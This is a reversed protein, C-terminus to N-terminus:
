PQLPPCDEYAPDLRIYTNSITEQVWKVTQKAKKEEIAATKIKSYDEKMNAKHPETVSVLRHVYVMTENM